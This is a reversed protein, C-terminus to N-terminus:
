RAPWEKDCGPCSDIGMFPYTHERVHGFPWTWWCRWEQHRQAKNEARRKCRREVAAMKPHADRRKRISEMLREHEPTM